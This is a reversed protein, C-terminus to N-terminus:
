FDKLINRWGSVIEMPKANSPLELATAVRRHSTLSNALVRYGKPYGPIQDFLLASSGPQRQYLDAIAGIEDEWRAGDIRLLEKRKEMVDMWERLDKVPM